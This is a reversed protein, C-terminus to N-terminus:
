YISFHLAWPKENQMSEQQRFDDEVVRKHMIMNMM